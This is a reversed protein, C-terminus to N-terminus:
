PPTSCNSPARCAAVAVSPLARSDAAAQGVRNSAGAPFGVPPLHELQRRRQLALRGVLGRSLAGVGSGAVAEGPAAHHEVGGTGRSGSLGSPRDSRARRAAGRHHAHEREPRPVFERALRAVGRRRLPRRRRGLLPTGDIRLDRRDDAQSRRHRGDGCAFVRAARVRPRLLPAHRRAHAQQRRAMRTGLRLRRAAADWHAERLFRLGHRAYELHQPDGFQRYAM